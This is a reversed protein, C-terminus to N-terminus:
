TQVRPFMAVTAAATCLEAGCAGLIHAKTNSVFSYTPVVDHGAAASHIAPRPRNNTHATALWCRHLHQHQHQHTAARVDDPIQHVFIKRPVVGGWTSVNTDVNVCMYLHVFGFGRLLPAMLLAQSSHFQEHERKNAEMTWKSFSPRVGHKGVSLVAVGGDMKNQATARTRSKGLGSLLLDRSPMLQDRGVLMSRVSLTLVMVVAVVSTLLAALRANRNTLLGIM